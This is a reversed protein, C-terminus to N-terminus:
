LSVTVTFTVFVLEETARGLWRVRLTVRGAPSVGVAMASEELPAQIQLTPVGVQVLALPMAGLALSATVMVTVTEPVAVPPLWFTVPETAAVSELGLKEDLTVQGSVMVRLRVAGTVRAVGAAM